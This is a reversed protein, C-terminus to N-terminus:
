TRRRLHVLGQFPRSIWGCVDSSGSPDGGTTGAAAFNGIPKVRARVEYELMLHGGAPVLTGILRILEAELGAERADFREGNAFELWPYIRGECWPMVGRGGGSILGTMSPPERRSVVEDPVTPVFRLWGARPRVEQLEIFVLEFARGDKASLRASGLRQAIQQAIPESAM